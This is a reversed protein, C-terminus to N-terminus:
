GKLAQLLRLDGASSPMPPVVQAVLSSPNDDRAFGPHLLSPDAKRQRDFCCIGRRGGRVSEESHCVANIAELQM